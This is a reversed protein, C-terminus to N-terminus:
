QGAGLTELNTRALEHGPNLATAREWCQRATDADHQRYAINGLKFYLDDGLDPALRAARRYADRAEEYRGARYLLDGLNKTVQPLTPAEELAERVLTEAEAVDGRLELLV